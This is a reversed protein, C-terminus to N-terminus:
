LEYGDQFVEFRTDLGNKAITISVKSAEDNELSVMATLKKAPKRESIREPLDADNGNHKYVGIVDLGNISDLPPEYDGTADPANKDVRKPPPMVRNQDNSTIQSGDHLNSIFSQVPM